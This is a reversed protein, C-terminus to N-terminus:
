CQATDSSAYVRGFQPSQVNGKNYFRGISARYAELTIM